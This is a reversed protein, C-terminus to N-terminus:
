SYDCVAYWGPGRKIEIEMEDFLAKIKELSEKQEDDLDFADTDVEQIGNDWDFYLDNILTSTIIVEEEGENGEVAGFPCPNADDWAKRHEYWEDICSQPTPNVIYEGKEDYLDFPPKYGHKKRWWEDIDHDDEESRWPLEDRDVILGYAIHCTADRGM